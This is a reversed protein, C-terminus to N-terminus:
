IHKHKEALVGIGIFTLALAASLWDRPIRVYGKALLHALFITATGILIANLAIFGCFRVIFPKKKLMKRVWGAIDDGDFVISGEDPEFMGSIVNFFSTKGAGNPGIVSVIEGQDIHFDVGDLARLGGFGKVLGNIDLLAM